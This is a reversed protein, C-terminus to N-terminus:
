RFAKVLVLPAFLRGYPLDPLLLIGSLAIPTRETRWTHLTRGLRPM